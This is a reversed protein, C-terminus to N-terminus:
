KNFNNPPQYDLPLLRSIKETTSWYGETFFNTANYFAGNQYIEIIEPTLLTCYSIKKPANTPSYQVCLYHDFYIAAITSDIAYAFSDTPLPKGNSIFFEDSQKLVDNYYTSSDNKNFNFDNNGLNISQRVIKKVRQKEENKVKKAAQVSFNHQTLQNTYISRMFHMVSGNYCDSRNEIWQQQKRKGGKLNKFVPYGSFFITKEKANYTFDELSYNIEYGLSRNEIIIPEYAVTRLIGNKKDYYFRLVKTNRISCNAAEPTTGVFLDFFLKGWKQYGNKELSQVIVPDLEKPQQELVIDFVTASSNVAVVFTKYGLANIILEGKQIPINSLTFQGNVNTVTTFSTNSIFVSAGVIPENANNKIKGNINLQATAQMGLLLLLIILQINKNM